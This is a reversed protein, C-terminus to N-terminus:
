KKFEERVKDEAIKSDAHTLLYYLYRRGAADGLESKLLLARFGLVVGVCKGTLVRQETKQSQGTQSRENHEPLMNLEVDGFVRKNSYIFPVLKAKSERAPLPVEHLYVETATALPAFDKWYRRAFAYNRAKLHSSLFRKLGSFRMAHYFFKHAGEHVLLKDLNSTKFVFVKKSKSETVGATYPDTESEKKAEKLCEYSSPFRTDAIWKNVTKERQTNTLEPAYIRLVQDYAWLAKRRQTPKLRNWGIKQSASSNLGRIRKGPKPIFNV